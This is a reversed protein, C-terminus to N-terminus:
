AFVMTDIQWIGACRTTTLQVRDLLRSLYAAGSTVEISCLLGPQRGERECCCFIDM